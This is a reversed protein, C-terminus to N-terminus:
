LGDARAAPIRGCGHAHSSVLTRSSALACPSLELGGQQALMEASVEAMPLLDEWVEAELRDIFVAETESVVLSLDGLQCIASSPVLDLCNNGSDLSKIVLSNIQNASVIRCSFYVHTIPRPHTGM